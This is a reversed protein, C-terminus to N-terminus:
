KEEEEGGSAEQTEYALTKGYVEEYKEKCLRYNEEKMYEANERDSLEPKPYIPPLIHVTFRRIEGGNEARKGDSRFTIFMPVVPVRYRVAYHFAGIKFPRPKEYLEWMSQEPYCVVYRDRALYYELADNFARMASLNGSLPMIGANRMHRGLSTNMNNFEAVIFNNKHGRMAKKLALCDFIFVHNSTVIASKVGKLNERGVVRTKLQFTNQYWTFPKIVFASDLACVLKRIGKKIYPYDKTVPLLISKDVPNLHEHFRGQREMEACREATQENVVPLM